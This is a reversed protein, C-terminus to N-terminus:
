TNDGTKSLLITQQDYNAIVVHCYCITIILSNNNLKIYVIVFLEDKRGTDSYDNDSMFPCTIFCHSGVVVNGAGVVGRLPYRLELGIFDEDEAAIQFAHVVAARGPKREPIEAGHHAAANPVPALGVRYRGHLTADVGDLGIDIFEDFVGLGVGLEEKIHRSDAASDGAEPVLLDGGQKGRRLLNLIDTQRLAKHM